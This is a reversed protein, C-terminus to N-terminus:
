HPSPTNDPNLTFITTHLNMCNCYVCTVECSDLSNRFTNGYIGTDNNQDTRRLHVCSCIFLHVFSGGGIVGRYEEIRVEVFVDDFYFDCTYFLLYYHGTTSIPFMRKVHAAGAGPSLGAGAGAGGVTGTAAGGAGGGAGTSSGPLVFSTNQALDPAHKKFILSDMEGAGCEGLQRRMETCCKLFPGTPPSPPSLSLSLSPVLRRCLSIGDLTSPPSCCLMTHTLASISYACETNDCRNTPPVM